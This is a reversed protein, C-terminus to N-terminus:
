AHKDNFWLNFSSPCSSFGPNWTSRVFAGSATLVKWQETLPKHQIEIQVGRLLMIVRIHQMAPPRQM